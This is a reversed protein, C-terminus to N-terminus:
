SLAPLDKFYFQSEKLEANKKNRSNNLYAIAVVITIGMLNALWDGASCERVAVFSQLVEALGAFLSGFTLLFLYFYNLFSKGFYVIFTSIALVTLLAFGLFHYFKDIGDPVQIPALDLIIEVFLILLFLVLHKVRSM